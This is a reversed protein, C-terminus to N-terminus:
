RFKIYKYSLLINKPIQIFVSLSIPNYSDTTIKPIKYMQFISLIYQYTADVRGISLTKLRQKM